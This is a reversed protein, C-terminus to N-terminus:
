LPYGLEVLSLLTLVVTLFFYKLVNGFPAMLLSERVSQLELSINHLESIYQLLYRELFIICM